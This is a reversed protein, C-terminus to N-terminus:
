TTPRSAATKRLQLKVAAVFGGCAMGKISLTTKSPEDAGAISALGLAVVALALLVKKM